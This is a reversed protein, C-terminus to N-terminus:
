KNYINCYYDFFKELPILQRNEISIYLSAFVNSFFLREQPPLEILHGIIDAADWSDGAGTLNRLIAGGVMGRHGAIYIKSNLEM